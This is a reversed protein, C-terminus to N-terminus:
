QVAVGSVEAGSISPLRNTPVREVGMITGTAAMEGTLTAGVVTANLAMGELNGGRPNFPNIGKGTIMYRNLVAEFEAGAEYVYVALYPNRYHDLLCRILLPTALCYEFSPGFCKDFCSRFSSEMFDIKPESVVSSGCVELV